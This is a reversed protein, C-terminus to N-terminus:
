ANKPMGSDSKDKSATEPIIIRNPHSSTDLEVRSYEFQRVALTAAAERDTFFEIGADECHENWRENNFPRSIPVNAKCDIQSDYPQTRLTYGKTDEIPKGTFIDQLELIVADSCRCLLSIWRVRKAYAPVQMKCLAISATDDNYAPMWGIIEGELNVSMPINPIVTAEDFYCYDMSVAEVDSYKFSTNKFTCLDFATRLIRSLMIGVGVFSCGEFVSNEITCKNLDISTFDCDMVETKSLFDIRVNSDKFTCGELISNFFMLTTDPSDFGEFTCCFFALQNFGYGNRDTGDEAYDLAGPTIKMFRIYGDEEEEAIRHLFKMCGEGAEPYYKREGDASVLPVRAAKGTKTKKKM